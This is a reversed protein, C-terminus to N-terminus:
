KELSSTSKRQLYPLKYPLKVTRAFEWYTNRTEIDVFHYQIIAYLKEKEQYHDVSIEVRLHGKYNQTLPFRAKNLWSQARRSLPKIQIESIKTLIKQTKQNKKLQKIDNTIAKVFAISEKQKQYNYWHHQNDWALFFAFILLLLGITQFLKRHMQQFLSLKNKAKTQNNTKETNAM